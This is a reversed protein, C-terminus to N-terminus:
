LLNLCAVFCKVSYVLMQGLGMGSLWGSRTEAPISKVISDKLNCWCWSNLWVNSGEVDRTGEWMM